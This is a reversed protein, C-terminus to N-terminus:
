QCLTANIINAMKEYETNIFFHNEGLEHYCFAGDMLNEWEKVKELATDKECYFLTTAVEMKEDQDSFRYGFFNQYDSLMPRIYIDAFRKNALIREDMGGLKKARELIEKESINKVNQLEQSRYKPSVEASIFLHKLNGSIAKRSLIEYALISGMSYGMVAYPMTVKRRANCYSIADQLMDWINEHLPERARTGRGAYEVVVVDIRKDLLNTLKNFAAISGGAYPLIFLQIQKEQADDNQAKM